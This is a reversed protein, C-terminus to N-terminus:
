RKLSSLWSQSRYFPWIGARSGMHVKHCPPFREEEWARGSCSGSISKLALLSVSTWTNLHKMNCKQLFSKLTHHFCCLDLQHQCSSDKVCPWSCPCFQPSGLKWGASGQKPLLLPQYGATKIFNIKPSSENLGAAEAQFHPTHHETALQFLCPDGSVGQNWRTVFRHNLSSLPTGSMMRHESSNLQQYWLIQTLLCAQKYAANSHFCKM